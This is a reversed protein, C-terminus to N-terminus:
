WPQAPGDACRDSVTGRVDVVRFQGCSGSAQALGPTSAIADAHAAGAFGAVSVAAAAVFLALRCTAAARNSSSFTRTM